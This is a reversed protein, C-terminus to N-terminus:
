KRKGKTAMNRNRHNVTIRLFRKKIEGFFWFFDNRKRLSNFIKLWLWCERHLFRIVDRTPFRGDFSVLITRLRCPVKSWQIPEATFEVESKLRFGNELTEMRRL